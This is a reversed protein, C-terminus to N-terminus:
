LKEILGDEVLQFLQFGFQSGTQILLGHGRVSRSQSFVSAEHSGRRWRVSFWSAKFTLSGM